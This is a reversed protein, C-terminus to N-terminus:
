LPATLRVGGEGREGNNWGTYIKLSYSFETDPGLDPPSLLVNTM